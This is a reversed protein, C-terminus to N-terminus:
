LGIADRFEIDQEFVELDNEEPDKGVYNKELLMQLTKQWVKDVKIANRVAELAKTRTSNLDLEEDIVKGSEQLDKYYKYKQGYASALNVWISGPSKGGESSLFEEGYKIADLFGNPPTLYLSIYVIANYVQEKLDKPTAGSLRRYAALLQERVQSANRGVTHLVNAYELRLKIDDPSQVVAMSYGKISEDFKKQLFQAKAWTAFEDPNTLENLSYTTIKKAVREVASKPKIEDSKSLKIDIPSIEKEQIIEKEEDNLVSQDARKFAGTLFLRTILYGALFGEISFYLFIAVAISETGKGLGKAIVSSVQSIHDPITKLQILGLGVIIKTLWDSIQELNTNVQLRYQFQNSSNQKGDSQIVRPIGFLFGVLYGSAMLALAWLTGTGWNSLRLWIFIVGCIFSLLITGAIVSLDEGVMKIINQKPLDM